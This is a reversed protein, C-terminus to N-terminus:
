ESGWQVNSFNYQSYFESTFRGNVREFGSLDNGATFSLTYDNLRRTQSMGTLKGKFLQYITSDEAFTLPDSLLKYIRVEKDLFDTIALASDVYDLSIRAFDITVSNGNAFYLTSVSDVNTMMDTPTFTTSPLGPPTVTIEYPGDTANVVGTIAVL